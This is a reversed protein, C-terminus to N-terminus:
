SLIPQIHHLNYSSTTNPVQTQQLTHPTNSKVELSTSDSLNNTLQSHHSQLIPNTTVVQHHQVLKPPKVDFVNENANSTTTEEDLDDRDEDNAAPDTEDSGGKTEKKAKM